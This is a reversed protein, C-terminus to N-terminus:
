YMYLLCQVGGWVTICVVLRVGRHGRWLACYVSCLAGWGVFQHVGRPWMSTCAMLGMSRCTWTSSIACWNIPYSQLGFEKELQEVIEFGNLAPRDMKNVFTFIPLKRM